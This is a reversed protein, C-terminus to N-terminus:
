LRGTSISSQSSESRLRQRAFFKVVESHGTIAASMLATWGDKDAQNPDAGNDLLFKVIESHGEQAALMLATGGDADAQNPNAGDNLLRRVEAINKEKAAECLACEAALAPSTVLVAFFGSIALNCAVFFTFITKKM